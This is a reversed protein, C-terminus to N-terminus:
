WKALLLPPSPAKGEREGRRDKYAVGKKMPGEKPRMYVQQLMSVPQLAHPEKKTEM